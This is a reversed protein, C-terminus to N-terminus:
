KVIKALQFTRSEFLTDTEKDVKYRASIGLLVNSSQLTRKDAYFELAEVAEQFAEKDEKSRISNKSISLRVQKKVGMPPLNISKESTLIAGNVYLSIDTIDLYKKTQNSVDIVYEISSGGLSTVSNLVITLQTNKFQANPEIKNIKKSFVSVSPTLVYDDDQYKLLYMPPDVDANFDGYSKNATVQFIDKEFWIPCNQLEKVTFSYIAENNYFGSFDNYRPEIKIRQKAQAIKSKAADCQETEGAMKHKYQEIANLMKTQKVVNIIKATDLKKVRIFNSGFSSNCINYQNNQGCTWLYGYLINYGVDRQAFYPTVIDYSKSVFLIEEKMSSRVLPSFSIQEISWNENGADIVLVYYGDHFDTPKMKQPVSMDDPNMGTAIQPILFIFLWLMVKCVQYYM